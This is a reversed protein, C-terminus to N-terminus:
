IRFRRQRGFNARDHAAFGAQGHYGEKVTIQATRSDFILYESLGHDAEAYEDARGSAHAGHRSFGARRPRYTSGQHRQRCGSLRRRRFRLAPYIDVAYDLKGAKAFNILRTTMEYDYPGCSDKACISVQQETCSLDDGVCGMDVVLLESIGAPLASAGHGVEEFVTFCINTRYAPKIKNDHMMRLLTLLLSACGKDDIFRSKLYGSPTFTTKPDYCIYDGASIGLKQVDEKSYVPEDIRVYLNREDRPRSKADDFV